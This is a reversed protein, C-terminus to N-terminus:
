YGLRVRRYTDAVEPGRPLQLLDLYVRIEPAVPIDNIRKSGSLGSGGTDSWLVVNAGRSTRTMGAEAAISALDKQPDVRVHVTTLETPGLDVLAAAAMGTIAHACGARSLGETARILVERGNRGYLHTAWQMPAQRAVPQQVLWDLVASRDVVHRSAHAGSGQATVLDAQQLISLIQHAQGVSLDVEDALQRVTWAFDVRDASLMAQVARIGSPPLPKTARRPRDVNDEPLGVRELHVLAGDGVLHLVHGDAHSQGNRAMQARLRSGLNAAVLVHGPELRVAPTQPWSAIAWHQRRGNVLASVADGQVTIRAWPAHDRWERLVTAEASEVHGDNM